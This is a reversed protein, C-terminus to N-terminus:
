ARGCIGLRVKVGPRYNEVLVDATQAMRKLIDIGEPMKLNLTLSRKNRHLNQFDQGAREGGIPDEEEGSSPEEIKIVDAGWDALQRVATPGARVRTLDLVCISALPASVSRSNYNPGTPSNAAAPGPAPITQM